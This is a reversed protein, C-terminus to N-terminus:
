IVLQFSKFRMNESSFIALVQLRSVLKFTAIQWSLSIHTWSWRSFILKTVRIPCDVISITMVFWFDVEIVLGIDHNLILTAITYDVDSEARVIVVPLSTGVIVISTSMFSSDITWDNAHGQLLLVVKTNNIDLKSKNVGITMHLRSSPENAVGILVSNKM